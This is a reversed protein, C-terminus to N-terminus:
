RNVHGPIAYYQRAKLVKLETHFNPGDHLSNLVHIIGSVYIAHTGTCNKYNITVLIDMFINKKLLHLGLLRNNGRRNSGRKGNILSPFFVVFFNLM